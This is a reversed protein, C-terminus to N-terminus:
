SSATEDQMFSHLTVKTTLPRTLPREFSIEITDYTLEESLYERVQNQLEPPLLELDLAVLGRKRVEQLVDDDDFDDFM